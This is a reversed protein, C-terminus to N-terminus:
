NKKGNLKIRGDEYKYKLNDWWKETHEIDTIAGRPIGSYHCEQNWQYICPKAYKFFECEHDMKFQGLEDGIPLDYRPKLSVICDVNCYVTNEDIYRKTYQNSYYVVANRFFINKRALLGTAFNLFAKYKDKEKADLSNHKNGFVEYVYKKFPSDMLPFVIDAIDGEKTTAGGFKYFGIEGKKVESNYKPEKTTDPMPSLMAYPFASNVDYSWCRLPKLAFAEEAFQYGYAVEYDWSVKTKRLEHNYTEKYGYKGKLNYLQGDRLQTYSYFKNAIAGVNTIDKSEGTLSCYYITNATELKVSCTYKYLAYNINYEDLEEKIKNFEEPTITKNNKSVKKM